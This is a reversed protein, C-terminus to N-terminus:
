QDRLANEIWMLIPDHWIIRQDSDQSQSRRL